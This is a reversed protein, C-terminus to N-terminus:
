PYVVQMFAADIGHLNSLRRARRKQAFFQPAKLRHLRRM